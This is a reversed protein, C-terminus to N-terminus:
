LMDGARAIESMDVLVRQWLPVTQKEVRLGLGGCWVGNEGWVMLIVRNTSVKRSIIRYIYFVLLWAM